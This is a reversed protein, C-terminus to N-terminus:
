DGKGFRQVVFFLILGEVVTRVGLRPRLFNTWHAPGLVMASREFQKLKLKLKEVYAVDNCRAPRGSRRRSSVLSSLRLAM